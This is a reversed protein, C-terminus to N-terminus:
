EDLLGEIARVTMTRNELDVRAVVHKTAPLLIERGNQRVAFVTNGGAELVEELTGLCLGSGEVVVTLGVLDFHYYQEGALPPSATRPIQILAGRFAAAEEPTSFAELSLVYGGRHPRVHRVTSVVARGSPAVLTVAPLGPLGEFRGPVDSLSEVRVDGKVGFPKVIRGITVLEDTEGM